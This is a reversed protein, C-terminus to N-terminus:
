LIRDFFADAVAWFKERLEDREMMIEHRSDPIAMVHAFREHAAFNEVAQRSVVRDSGAVLMLTPVHLSNPQRAKLKEFARSAAALWGFTPAGIALRRDAAILAKVRRFRARDSTFFNGIFTRGTGGEEDRWRAWLASYGRKDLNGALAHVFRAFPSPGGMGLFPTCLIAGHFRQPWTQMADLAITAGTSHALFIYPHVCGENEIRKVMLDFDDLYDSFDGVHGKRRDNLLRGSLGQGRLDMTAVDFGRDTLERMVEFYKEIFEARGQLLLITARRRAASARAIRLSLGDHARITEVVLGSPPENGEILVIDTM